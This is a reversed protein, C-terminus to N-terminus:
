KAKKLTRSTIKKDTTLNLEPSRGELSKGDKRPELIVEMNSYPNWNCRTVLWPQPRYISYLNSSHAPDFYAWTAQNYGKTHTPDQWFGFSGAYPVAILAQGDPHIVRWM